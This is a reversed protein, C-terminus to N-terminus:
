SDHISRPAPGLADVVGQERLDVLAEVPGGDAMAEEFTITFPDHLHLLPLRDLGLRTLSEEASRHVRAGDFSGTSGHRDVKTLVQAHARGDLLSLARGLVVEARGDAYNNSTDVLRFPGTLIATAFDVASDEEPTGPSTGAGLFSTGITVPDADIGTRGLKRPASM